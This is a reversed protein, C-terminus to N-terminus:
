GQTQQWRRPAQGTVLSYVLVSGIVLVLGAVVYAPGAGSDWEEKSLGQRLARRRRYFNILGYMIYVLAVMWIALCLLIKGTGPRGSDDSYFSLIFTGMAGIHFGTFLWKFFTRENAMHTKLDDGKFPKPVAEIAGYQLTEGDDGDKEKRKKGKKKKKMGAEPGEKGAEEDTEDFTVDRHQTQQPQISDVSRTTQGLVLDTVTQAAREVLSTGSVEVPVEINARWHQDQGDPGEDGSGAELDDEEFDYDLGASSPVASQQPANRRSRDQEVVDGPSRRGLLPSEESM